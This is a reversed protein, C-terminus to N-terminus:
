PMQWNSAYTFASLSSTKCFTINSLCLPEASKLTTKHPQTGWVLISLWSSLGKSMLSILGTLGLSFWDQTNMPLVLASIGISQSVSTFLQSMPFSGSTPFSQPCTSFPVVSSSITSHCWRSLPWSNSCVAPPLSLCPIRNYQLGHPRLSDSM